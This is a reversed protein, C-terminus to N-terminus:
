KNYIYIDYGGYGGPRDSCFFGKKTNILPFFCADNRPSNIPAKLNEVMIVKGDELTAKFIDLDGLGLHGDSSFYLVSDNAYSPYFENGKTNIIAGLNIPKSYSGDSNIILYFLDYQGFGASSNSSFYLRTGEANLCPHLMSFTTVDSHLIPTYSKKNNNLDLKNLYSKDHNLENEFKNGANLQTSTSSFYLTLEDSSLSPHAIDGFLKNSKKDIDQPKSFNNGDGAFSSSLIKYFNRTFPQRKVEDFEKLTFRNSSFYLKDKVICLGIENDNTNISLNKIHSIKNPNAEWDKVLNLKEIKETLVYNTPELNKLLTYYEIAMPYNGLKELSQALYYLSLKHKDKRNIITEYYKSALEYQETIYYCYGLHEYIETSSDEKTAKIYYPIASRFNENLYLQNAIYTNKQSKSVSCVFILLFLLTLKKILSPKM